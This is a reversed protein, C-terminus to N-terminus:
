ILSTTFQYINRNSSRISAVCTRLRKPVTLKHQGFQESTGSAGNEQSSIPIGNKHFISLSILIIKNFLGWRGEICRIQPSPILFSKELLIKNSMSVSFIYFRSYNTVSHKIKKFIKRLWFFHIGNVSYKLNM